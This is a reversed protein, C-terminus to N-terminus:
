QSSGGRDFQLPPHKNEDRTRPVGGLNDLQPPLSCHCFLIRRLASPPQVHRHEQDGGAAREVIREGFQTKGLVVITDDLMVATESKQSAGM